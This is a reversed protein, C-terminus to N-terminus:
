MKFMVESTFYRIEEKIGSIDRNIPSYYPAIQGDVRIRLKIENNLGSLEFTDNDVWKASELLRTYFFWGPHTKFLIQETVVVGKKDLFSIKIETYDFLFDAMVVAKITKTKNYKAGKFLEKSLKFGNNLIEQYGFDLQGLNFNLKEYLATLCKYVCESLLKVKGLFGQKSFKNFPFTEKITHISNFSSIDIEDPHRSFEVVIKSVKNVAIEPLHFTFLNGVFVGYRTFDEYEAIGSNNVRIDIWLRKAKM